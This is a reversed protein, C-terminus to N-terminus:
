SVESGDLAVDLDPDSRYWETGQRTDKVMVGRKALRDRIEDARGWDGNARAQSREAIMTMCAESLVPPQAEMLGLGLIRDFGAVLTLKSRADLDADKVVAWLVSLAVPANLDDAMATWFSQHYRDLVPSVIKKWAKGVAAPQSHRLALVRNYLNELGRRAGDLAEWSFRLESRYHAGLCLYRYHLPKFGKDRVTQLTIFGGGSKSMKEKDLILFAGHMWTNVWRHGFCAESQAIENTHHIPIHDIGGCHIDIREGLHASAMASCEIHWGPFGIGWPSDWKMIQRPFKSKSFWLVFDAGARKGLDAEVRSLAAAEDVPGGRLAHYDPFRTTDFYINGESEYTVGQRALAEVFEIIQAIHETARCVIDPRVINLASCDEFFVDEYFRAIEWPSRHEREAALVMKDEGADADSQLHGVDTVNMVHTTRYGAERLTRVLVDEFLYTRLNGIHAYNYVTPGCCYLGVTGPVIPRLQEKSRNLSNFLHLATPVAPLSDQREPSDSTTRTRDTM